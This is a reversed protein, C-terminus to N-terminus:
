SFKADANKNRVCELRRTLKGPVVGAQGIVLIPRQRGDRRIRRDREDSREALEEPFFRRDHQDLV